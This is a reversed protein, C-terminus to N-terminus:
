KGAATLRDEIAELRKEIEIEALHKDHQLLVSMGHVLAKFQAIRDPDPDARHLERVLAALSSRSNKANNLRLQRRRPPAAAGAGCTCRRASTAGVPAPPSDATETSM